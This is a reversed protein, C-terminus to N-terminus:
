EPTSAAVRLMKLDTNEKFEGANSKYIGEGRAREEALREAVELFEAVRSGSGALGALSPVIEFLSLLADASKHLLSTMSAYVATRAEPAM